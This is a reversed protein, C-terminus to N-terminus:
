LGRMVDILVDRLIDKGKKQRVIKYRPLQNPAWAVSGAPASPYAHYAEVEVADAPRARKQYFAVLADELTAQLQIESLSAAVKIRVVYARGPGLLYGQDLVAYEQVHQKDYRRQIAHRSRELMALRQQAREAAETKPHLVTVRRYAQIAAPGAGHQRELCLACYYSADPGHRSTPYEKTLAQFAEMAKRPDDLKELLLLGAKYLATDALRARPYKAKVMEYKRAAEDFRDFGEDDSADLFLALPKGELDSNIEIFRAFQRVSRRADNRPDRPDMPEKPDKRDRAAVAHLTRKAREIDGVYSVYLRAAAIAAPVALPHDGHHFLVRKYELLAYAKEGAEHLQAAFDFRERATQGRAAGVAALMALATVAKRFRM